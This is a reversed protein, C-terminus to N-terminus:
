KKEVEPKGIEIVVPTMEGYRAELTEPDEITEVVGCQYCQVGEVDPATLDELDGLCVTQRTGCAACSFVLSATSNVPM